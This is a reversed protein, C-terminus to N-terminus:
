NTIFLIHHENNRGVRKVHGAYFILTFQAVLLVPPILFSVLLLHVSGLVFTSFQEALEERSNM